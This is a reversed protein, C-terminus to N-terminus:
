SNDSSPLVTSSPEFISVECYSVKSRKRALPEQLKLAQAEKGTNTTSPLGCCTLAECKANKEHPVIAAAIVNVYKCGHVCFLQCTKGTYASEDVLM